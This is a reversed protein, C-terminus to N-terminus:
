NVNLKPWNRNWKLEFFITVFFCSVIERSEFSTKLTHAHCNLCHAHCCWHVIKRVRLKRAEITESIKVNM